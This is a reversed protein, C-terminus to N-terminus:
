GEVWRFVSYDYAEYVHGYQFRYGKRKGIRSPTGMRVREEEEFRRKDHEKRSAKIEADSM